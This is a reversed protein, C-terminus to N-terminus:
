RGKQKIIGIVAVTEGKKVPPTGPVLLKKM